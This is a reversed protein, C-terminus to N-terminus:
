RRRRRATQSSRDYLIALMDESPNLVIGAARWDEEQLLWNTLVTPGDQRKAVIIVQSSHLPYAQFDRYASLDGAEALVSMDLPARTNLADLLRLLRLERAYSSDPESRANRDYRIVFRNTTLEDINGREHLAAFLDRQRRM